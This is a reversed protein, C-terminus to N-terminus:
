PHPQIRTSYYEISGNYFLLLSYIFLCFASIMTLTEALGILPDPRSAAQTRSTLLTLSRAAARRTHVQLCRLVISCVDNLGEHFPRQEGRQFRFQPVAAMASGAVVIIVHPLVNLASPCPVCRTRAREAQFAAHLPLPTHACTRTHRLPLLLLMYTTHLLMLRLIIRHPRNRYAAM